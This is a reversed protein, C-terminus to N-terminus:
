YSLCSACCLILNQDCSKSLLLDSSFNILYPYPYKGGFFVCNRKDQSDPFLIVEATWAYGISYCQASVFISLISIICM